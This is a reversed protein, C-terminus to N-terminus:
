TSEGTVRIGHDAFADRLAQAFAVAHPGDSHVCVTQVELGVLTGSCARVQRKLVMGIAQDIAEQETEVMANEQTSTRSHVPAFTAGTADESAQRWGPQGHAV